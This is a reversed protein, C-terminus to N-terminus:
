RKKFVQYYGRSTKIENVKELELEYKPLYDDHYKEDLVLYSNKNMNNIITESSFYGPFAFGIKSLNISNLDSLYYYIPSLGSLYVDTNKKLVQNVVIIDEQQRM